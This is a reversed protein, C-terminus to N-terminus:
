VCPLEPLASNLLPTKDLIGKRRCQLETMKGMYELLLDGDDSYVEPDGDALFAFQKMVKQAMNCVKDLRYSGRQKDLQKEVEVTVRANLFGNFAPDSLLKQM